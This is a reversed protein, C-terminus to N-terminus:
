RRLLPSRVWVRYENERMGLASVSSVSEYLAIESVTLSATVTWEPVALKSVASRVLTIHPRFSLSDPTIGLSVLEYDLARKLALLEVCAAGEAVLYRGQRTPFRRVDTLPQLFEAHNQAVRALSEGVAVAVEASIDSLFALTLHFNRASIPRPNTGALAQLGRDRHTLLELALHHEVPVGIFCRM